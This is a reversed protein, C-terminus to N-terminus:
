WFKLLFTISYKQSKFNEFRNINLDPDVPRASQLWKTTMLLFINRPFMLAKLDGFAATRFVIILIENLIIIAM